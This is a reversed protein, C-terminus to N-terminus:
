GNQTSLSTTLATVEISFIPISFVTKLLLYNFHGTNLNLIATSPLIKLAQVPQVERTHCGPSWFPGSCPSKGFSPYDRGAHNM